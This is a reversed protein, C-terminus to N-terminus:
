NFIPIIFSLPILLIQRIQMSLYIHLYIIGKDLSMRVSLHTSVSMPIFIAHPCRSKEVLNSPTYASIQPPRITETFTIDEM